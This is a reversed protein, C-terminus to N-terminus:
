DQNINKVVKLLQDVTHPWSLQLARQRGNSATHDTSVLNMKECLEQPDNSEIYLAYNELVEPISSNNAVIVPTECALAQLPPIGFGEYIAPHVLAIAGSYLAPLDEDPVYTDPKIVSCGESRATEITKYIEENLWGDGGVLILSTNNGYKKCYLRYSDVLMKINKRPEINGVYLFYQDNPLNYKNQILSVEDHSRKYFIDSNVGLYVVDIRKSAVKLLNIIESKTFESIAIIRDTRKIWAKIYKALYKQNKPSVFQPYRLFGVDHIFTVSKSNLLPWNRYNMFIYTGRGLIIDLPIMLHMRLLLEVIRAPLPITKIQVNVFSYKKLSASKKLPVVLVIEVDDRLSAEKVIELLSHGIGSLRSSALPLADFYLREKHM